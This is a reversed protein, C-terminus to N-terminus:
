YRGKTVFLKSAIVTAMIMMFRAECLLLQHLV